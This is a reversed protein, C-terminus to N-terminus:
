ETNGTTDENYFRNAYQQFASINNLLSNSIGEFGEDDFEVYPYVGVYFDDKPRAKLFHKMEVQYGLVKNKVINEDRHFNYFQVDKPVVISEIAIRNMPLWNASSGHISSRHFLLIEGAKVPVPIMYKKLSKLLNNQIPNYGFQRAFNTNIHSGPFIWLCGNLKNSNVLPMWANLSYDKREDVIAADQHWIDGKIGFPKIIHAVPYIDVKETDIVKRLYPNLYQDVMRNSALKTELDCNILNFLEGKPYKKKTENILQISVRKLNVLVDKEMQGIRTYGLYKLERIRNGDFARFINMDLPQM